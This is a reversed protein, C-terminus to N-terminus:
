FYLHSSVECIPGTKLGIYVKGTKHNVAISEPGYVQNELLLDAESLRNDLPLPLPDPLRFFVYNTIM